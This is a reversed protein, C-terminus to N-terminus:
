IYCLFEVLEKGGCELFVWKQRRKLDVILVNKQMPVLKKKCVLCKTLEGM